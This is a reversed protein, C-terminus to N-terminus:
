TSESSLVPQFSDFGYAAKATALTEHIFQSKAVGYADGDYRYKEALEKKLVSYATVAEPHTRLYDRFILHNHLNPTDVSCVYVHHRKSTPWTFAERGPIGLNGEHIYHIGALREIVSELILRSSIVVDIDIIPKAALGRVSTSGVHEISLVLEGLASQLKRAYTQFEEVWHPNYEVVEIVRIPTPDPMM